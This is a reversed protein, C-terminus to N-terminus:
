GISWRKVARSTTRPQVLPRSVGETEGIRGYTTHELVMRSITSRVQSWAELMANAPDLFPATPRADRERREAVTATSPLPPEGAQPEAQIVVEEVEASAQEFAESFEADVGM